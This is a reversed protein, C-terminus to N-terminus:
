SPRSSPSPSDEAGVATLDLPTPQSSVPAHAPAAPLWLSFCAGGLAAGPPPAPNLWLLAGGEQALAAAIALSLGGPDGGEEEGAGDAESRFPEFLRAAREPRVAAGADSIHLRLGRRAGELRASV